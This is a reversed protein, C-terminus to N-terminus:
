RTVRPIEMLVRLRRGHLDIDARAQVAAALDDLGSLDCPAAQGGFPQGSDAASIMDLQLFILDQDARVAALVRAPGEGDALGALILEVVGAM